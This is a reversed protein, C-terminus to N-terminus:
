FRARATLSWSARANPYVTIFGFAPFPLAQNFYSEGFCNKCGAILEYSENLRVGLSANVINVPGTETSAFNQPSVFHKSMYSYDANAILDIGDSVPRDVNIGAAFQWKPTRQLRDGLVITATAPRALENDQWSGNAFLRVGDAVQANAELELGYIKADSVAIGFSGNPATGTNFINKYDYYFGTFNVTARGGMLTSKIGAEYSDITEPDFDFFESAATVRASWGGSKFGRTYMAYLLLDDVPKVEFGFKPTFRTVKLDCDVPREPRSPSVQGCVTSNDFQPVGAFRNFMQDTGSFDAILSIDIDKKDHTLRGGAIIAFADSVEYRLESFAAYSDTGIELDKRFFLSSFIYDGIFSDSRERFFFLGALFNLKGDLATGSLQLEQTFQRTDNDTYLVYLSPAQDTLDLNYNQQTARYATISKLSVTDSVEWDITGAFGWAKGINRSVTDTSSVWLSETPPRLIGSTDVGYRGNQNGRTWDASLNIEVTDSPQTRLAARFGVTKTGNVNRDLVRNYVDGDGDGVMANLRLGTAEGLGLNASGRLMWTDFRGYSGEAMFANEFEPKKTVVKLAGASTNRGYLTGQPGRLVEIREVDFLAMNNVGQRAIVVDDIYFGVPPDISVISETEGVGRIFVTTASGQGINSSAHLNPITSMIDVLQTMQRNQIAQEGLATVALPVDQLKQERRQATVVIDGLATEGMGTEQAHVAPIGALASSACCALAMRKFLTSGTM